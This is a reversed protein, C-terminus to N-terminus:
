FKGEELANGNPMGNDINEKRQYWCTEKEKEFFSGRRREEKTMDSEVEMEM